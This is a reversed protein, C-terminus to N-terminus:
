KQYEKLQELAAPTGIAKLTSIVKKLAEKKEEPSKSYLSEVIVYHKLAAAPKGQAIDIDGAFTRLRYNLEGQPRLDLADSTAQRADNFQKIGTHARSKYYYAEAKRYANKELTLISEAGKLAEENRDTTLSSQTYLKWILPSAPNEKDKLGEDLFPWARTHHGDKSLTAGLWRLITSPLKTEPSDKRLLNIEKELLSTNEAQYASRVLLPGV